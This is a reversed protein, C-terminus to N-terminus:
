RVIRLPLPIAFPRVTHAFIAVLDVRFIKSDILPLM